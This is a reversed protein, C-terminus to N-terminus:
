PEPNFPIHEPVYFYEIRAVDFGGLPSTVKFIRDKAPTKLQCAKIFNEALKEDSFIGIYKREKISREEYKYGVVFIPKREIMDRYEVLQSELDDIKWELEKLDAPLNEFM